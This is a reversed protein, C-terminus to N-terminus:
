QAGIWAALEMNRRLPLSRRRLNELAAQARDKHDATRRDAFAAEAAIQRVSQKRSLGFHSENVGIDSL